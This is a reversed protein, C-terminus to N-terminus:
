FNRKETLESIHMTIIGWKGKAKEMVITNVTKSEFPEQGELTTTSIIECLAVASQDDVVRVTKNEWRNVRTFKQKSAMEPTISYYYDPTYITGIQIVRAFSDDHMISKIAAGDYANYAQMLQELVSEVEKEAQKNQAFSIHIFSIFLPLIIIYKKM